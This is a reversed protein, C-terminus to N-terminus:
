AVAVAVAAAALMVVFLGSELNYRQLM